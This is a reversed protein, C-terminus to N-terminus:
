GEGEEGDGEEDMVVSLNFRWRRVEHELASLKAAVSMLSPDASEVRVKERVNVEERGRWLFLEGIEDHTPMKHGLGFLRDRLNFSSLSFDSTGSPTHPNSTSTAPSLTRVTLVLSADHISFHLSLNPNLAPEFTPSPVSSIWWEQEQEEQSSSAFASTPPDPGKLCARASSLHESLLRLQGSIFPASTSQGTWRTVDIIDLSDNLHNALNLLPTLTLDPTTSTPSPQTLTHRTSPYTPTGRPVNPALSSLRM